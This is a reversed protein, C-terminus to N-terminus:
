GLPTHDWNQVNILRTSDGGEVRALTMEDDSSDRSSKTKKAKPGNQTRSGNQSQDSSNSNFKSMDLKGVKNLEPKKHTSVKPWPWKLDLFTLFPYLIWALKNYESDLEFEGLRGPGGPGDPVDPEIQDFSPQDSEIRDENPVSEHVNMELSKIEHMNTASEVIEHTDEDHQEHSAAHSANQTPQNKDPLTRNQINMIDYKLLIINMCRM